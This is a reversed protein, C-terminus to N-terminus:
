YIIIIIIQQMNEFFIFNEAINKKVTSQAWEIIVMQVNFKLLFSNSFEM